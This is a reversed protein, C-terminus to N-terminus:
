ISCEDKVFFMTDNAFQLHSVIVKERGILFRHLLSSEVARDVMRGLIDVVVTFLFPSLPDGQRLGRTTFFKGRPRENIFVSYSVSSFCGRMWRRLKQEFGKKALVLDLFDWEVYDYAKEFDIKFVLGSRGKSRYEEVAENAVLVSDLIQRGEVFAAQAELITDALVGRMRRFVEMLDEKLVEWNAQYVAM